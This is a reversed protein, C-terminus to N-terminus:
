LNTIKAKAKGKGGEEKEMRDIEASQPLLLLWATECGRAVVGATPGRPRSLVPCSM